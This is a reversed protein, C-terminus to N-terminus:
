GLWESFRCENAMAIGDHPPSYERVSLSHLILSFKAGFKHGVEIMITFIMLKHDVTRVYYPRDYYSVSLVSFVYWGTGTIIKVM